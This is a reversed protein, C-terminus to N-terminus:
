ARGGKGIERSIKRGVELVPAARNRLYRHDVAGVIDDLALECLRTLGIPGHQTRHVARGGYDNEPVARLYIGRPDFASAVIVGNLSPGVAFYNIGSFDLGDIPSVDDVMVLGVAALVRWRYVMLADVVDEYAFRGDHEVEITAFPNM